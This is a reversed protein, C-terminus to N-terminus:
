WKQSTVSYRNRLEGVLRRLDSVLNPPALGDSWKMQRQVYFMALRLEDITASNVDIFVRQKLEALAPIELGYAYGDLSLAFMELRYTPEDDHPVLSLNLIATPIPESLGEVKEPFDVRPPPPQPVDKWNFEFDSMAVPLRGQEAQSLIEGFWGAYTWDQIAGLRAIVPFRQIFV